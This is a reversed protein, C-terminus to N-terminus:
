SSGLKGVSISPRQQFFYDYLRGGLRSEKELLCVSTQANNKLIRYAMYLGSLGGGAIVVDYQM